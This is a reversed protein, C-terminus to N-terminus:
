SPKRGLKAQGAASIFSFYNFVKQNTCVDEFNRKILIDKIQSAWNEKNPCKVIDHLMQKYM